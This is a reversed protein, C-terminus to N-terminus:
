KPCDLRGFARVSDVMRRVLTYYARRVRAELELGCGDLGDAYHKSFKDQYNFLEQLFIVNPVQIPSVDYQLYLMNNSCILLGSQKFCVVKM